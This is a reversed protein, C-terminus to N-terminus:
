DFIPKLEEEVENAIDIVKKSLNFEEYMKGGLFKLPYM